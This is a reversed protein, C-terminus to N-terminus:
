VTTPEPDLVEEILAEDQDLAVGDSVLVRRLAVIAVELMADDPEETTLKQMMLTPAVLTRVWGRHYNRASLRLLEYGIGAILPVFVIRSLLRLLFPLGSLFSFLIISLILVVLVFSTGCRPHILSFGRVIAPTLRAGAEYANVTKHEAGHYAFVRRIDSSRRILLLYGIFISLRFVGELLERAIPPLRSKANPSPASHRRRSPMSRMM